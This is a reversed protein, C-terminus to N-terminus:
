VYVYTLMIVVLGCEFWEYKAAAVNVEPVGEVM